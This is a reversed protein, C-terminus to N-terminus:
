YQRRPHEDLATRMSQSPNAAVFEFLKNPVALTDKDFMTWQCKMVQEATSARSHYVLIQAGFKKRKSMCVLTHKKNIKTYSM